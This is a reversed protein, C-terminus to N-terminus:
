GAKVGDAKAAPSVKAEDKKVPEPKDGNGGPSTEVSTGAPKVASQSKRSDTVYFGSGKFIIGVPHILKRAQGDCEPCVKIPDDKVSQRREFRIGCDLCQYEYVPM